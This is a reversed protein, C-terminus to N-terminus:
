TEGDMKEEAAAGDHGRRVGKREKRTLLFSLVRFMLAYSLVAAFSAVVFSGFFLPILMGQGIEAFAMVQEGVQWFNIKAIEATIGMLHGYVERVSPGDFFVKGVWYNFTFIPPITVPNTVMVSVLTAPRSLKFFTALFVAIILQVGITPTLALFLGVSFGGAIAEPTGRLKRLGRLLPRLRLLIWTFPLKAKELPMAM